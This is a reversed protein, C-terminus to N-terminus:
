ESAGTEASTTSASADAPGDSADAAPTAAPILWACAPNKEPSAVISCDGHPNKIASLCADLDANSPTPAELGHLCAVDYFRICADTSSGSTTYPPTISVGCSPARECRAQEVSKCAEVGTADTGCASAAIMGLGILAGAASRGSIM